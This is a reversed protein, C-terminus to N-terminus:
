RRRKPHRSRWEERALRLEMWCEDQKDYSGECLARANKGFRILDYESMVRLKYRLAEFGNDKLGIM